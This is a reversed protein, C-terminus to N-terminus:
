GHTGTGRKGTNEKKAAEMAAKYHQEIDFVLHKATEPAHRMLESLKLALGETEPLPILSPMDPVKQRIEREIRWAQDLSPMGIGKEIRIMQGRSIGVAKALGEQSLNALNRFVRIARLRERLELPIPGQKKRGGRRSKGKRIRQM